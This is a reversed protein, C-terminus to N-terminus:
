TKKFVNGPHVNPGSKKINVQSKSLILECFHSLYFIYSSEEPLLYLLHVTDM